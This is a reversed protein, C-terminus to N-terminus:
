FFVGASHLKDFVFSPLLHRWKCGVSPDVGIHLDVGNGVKWVLYNGIIDFARLVVKLAYQCADKRNLM